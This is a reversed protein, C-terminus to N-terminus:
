SIGNVGAALSAVTIKGVDDLTLDPNDRRMLTFVVTKLVKARRLDLEELPGGCTEEIRDVEDLTLDDVSYPKGNIMITSDSM